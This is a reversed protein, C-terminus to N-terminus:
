SVHRNGKPRKRRRGKINFLAVGEAAGGLLWAVGVVRLWGAAAPRLLLEQSL